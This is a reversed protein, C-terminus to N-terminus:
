EGPSLRWREAIRTAGPAPAQSSRSSPRKTHRTSGAPTASSPSSLRGTTTKKNKTTSYNRNKCDPCQLTIIERM